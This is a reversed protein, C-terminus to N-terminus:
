RGGLIFGCYTLAAGPAASPQRAGPASTPKHRAAGASSRALAWQDEEPPPPSSCLSSSNSNAVTLAGPPPSTSTAQDYSNQPQQSAQVM